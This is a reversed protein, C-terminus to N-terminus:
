SLVDVYLHTTHGEFYALHTEPGPEARYGARFERDEWLGVLRSPPTVGVCVGSRYASRTGRNERRLKLPSMAGM